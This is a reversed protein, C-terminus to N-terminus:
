QQLSDVGKETFFHPYYKKFEEIIKELPLDDFHGYDHIYEMYRNGQGDHEHFISDHIGDFELPNVGHRRCLEIDFAPTAKVWNDDLYIENYGHFVFLDTKMLRILRESALHNRVNAFRLRCPIHQVRCSAALVLAKEVCWGSGKMLVKGASIHEPSLSVQYPDYKIGDRVAYFLCIAKEIESSAGKAHKTSFEIIEPSDSDIYSTPSLYKRLTESTESM